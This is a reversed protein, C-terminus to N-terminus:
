EHSSVFSRIGCSDRSHVETIYHELTCSNIHFKHQLGQNVDPAQKTRVFIIFFDATVNHDSFAQPRFKLPGQPPSPHPTLPSPLNEM